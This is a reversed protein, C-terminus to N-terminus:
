ASACALSEITRGDDLLALEVKTTPGPPRNSTSGLPLMMTVMPKLAHGHVLDM